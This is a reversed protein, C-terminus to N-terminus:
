ILRRYMHETSAGPTDTYARGAKQDIMELFAADTFQIENARDIDAATPYLTVWSVAGFTSGTDVRFSCQLGTLENVKQAIEVGLALGEALCGNACTTQIVGAYDATIPTTPVEAPHMIQSVMDNVTGQIIHKSGQSVMELYGEDVMLKDSFAELSTYDPAFTTFALTGVGQSYVRSWLSVPTGSTQHAREAITTAWTLAGQLDGGHVQLTRAFVYM